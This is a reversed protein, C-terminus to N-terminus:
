DQDEPMKETEDDTEADPTEPDSAEADAKKSELQVFIDEFEERTLKEKEILQKACEHLIAKHSVILETAKEHCETVIRHVEEDIAAAVKESYNRTQGWDRGIFVENSDDDYAILGVKDSMGFRTVMSRAIATVQLIDQSAGTTVDDFILEEAIRGGLGVMIRQLMKGKTMFM